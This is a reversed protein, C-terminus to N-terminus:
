DEGLLRRAEKAANTNPYDKAIERFHSSALELLRDPDRADGPDHIPNKVNKADLALMKALKLRRSATQEDDTKNVAVTRDRAEMIPSDALVQETAEPRRFLVSGGSSPTGPQSAVEGDVPLTSTRQRLISEFVVRYIKDIRVLPNNALLLHVQAQRTNGPTERKRLSTGAFTSERWSPFPGAPGSKSNVKFNVTMGHEAQLREAHAKRWSAKYKAGDGHSTMIALKRTEVVWRAERLLTGADVPGALVHLVSGDDLTFYSAVNGGQKQGNVIRFNGVKQFSCVFHQNLYDAVADNSLARV